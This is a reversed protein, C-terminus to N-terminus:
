FCNKDNDSAKGLYGTILITPINLGSMMLVKIGVLSWTNKIITGIYSYPECTLNM